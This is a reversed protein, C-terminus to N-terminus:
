AKSQIGAEVLNAFEDFELKGDKNGDYRRLLLESDKMTEGYVQNDSSCDLPLRYISKHSYYIMDTMGYKMLSRALKLEFKDVLGDRNVDILDFM